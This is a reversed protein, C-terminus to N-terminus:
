GDDDSDSDPEQQTGGGWFRGILNRLLRVPLAGDEDIDDDDDYEDDEDDEAHEEAGDPERPDPPNPVDEVDGREADMVWRRHQEDDQPFDVEFGGPMVDGGGGAGAGAGDLGEGDVGFILGALVEPMEAAARAFQVVGGPFREQIHPRADYIAQLEQRIAADPIMQALIRGDAERERRTRPRFAFVDESGAFFTADYENVRTLPPIPDCSLSPAEMVRRPFFATLRRSSTSDLLLVHRYISFSLLDPSSTPSAFSFQTNFRALLNHTNKRNFSNFVSTATSKLWTATAAPKWLSSSRIAYLHSLLHLTAETQSSLSTADVHVRFAWHGRLDNPLTIDAKDALLPLISPFALIAEKLAATSDEGNKVGRAEEKARLALARGYAWGPLATVNFSKGLSETKVGADLTWMDLMWDHMGARISLYDLYLLAGQPDTHPDLSLLLRAFEFATRPCGRRQLDTIMRAVALYFPRNEVRDFDLRNMGTTFTFAGIFSREYTYLARNLYDVSQAHEERHRFVESMQLLTDAHWPLKSLIRWFQEPDGSSVAGMFAKTISRYRQSYEVTWWKEGSEVVGGLNMKSDTEDETLPRISLGERQSASWWTPQPKTLNSKLHQTAARAGRPLKTEAKSASIVKAGFFKRMEAESDLHQLSVALLSNQRKSKPSQATNSSSSVTKYEPHKMSLEALAKDVEDLEDKKAKRKGKVKKSPPTETTPPAVGKSGSSPIEQPAPSEHKKAGASTDKKKKKKSKEQVDSEEMSEDNEDSEQALAAFGTAVSISNTARRPSSGGAEHIVPEIEHPQSPGGLSLLEEQERQQRKNLRPPM